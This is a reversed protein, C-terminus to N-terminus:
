AAVLEREPAEFWLTRPELGRHRVGVGGDPGEPGAPTNRMGPLRGDLLWDYSAGTADAIQRCVSVLDRPRMNDREWGRWSQVPVGCALAAEKVNWGFRQRVLALRAGFTDDPVWGQEASVSTMVASHRWQACEDVSRAYSTSSVVRTLGYIVHM